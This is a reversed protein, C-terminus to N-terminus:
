PWLCAPSSVPAPLLCSVRFFARWPGSGLIRAADVAHASQELFAARALLYVYPYLVLSFMVVAGGLSRVEPFWYEGFSWDFTVRLWEQVPGAADLLGTYTYAIIYAPFALPLLLAWQLLRRGPFRCATVLWASVVGISGAGLSVGLM